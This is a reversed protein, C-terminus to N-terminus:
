KEEMAYLSVATSGYRRSNKRRLAGYREALTEDAGHEVVVWAGVGLLNSEGLVQLTRQSLGRRYPPDVFAGDFRQDRFDGLRRLGGPLAIKRIDARDAFGSREVNSRVFRCSERSDDIFTVHAAGRSLADLGLAGTGAFLDLWCRGAIDTRSALINFVAARVKEATPRVKSGRPARLARGRAAGGTIRM